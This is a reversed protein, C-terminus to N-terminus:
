GDLRICLSEEFDRVLDAAEAFQLRIPKGAPFRYRWFSAIHSIGGIKEGLSIFMSPARLLFARFAAPRGNSTLDAFADDYVKLAAMVDRRESLINTKLRKRAREFYDLADPDRMGYLNLRDLEQLTDSLAQSVDSLAWKYYLFGKWSFVGERFADGDLMLTRRLPELRDDVQTSLLAEVMRGTSGVQADDAAKTALSVLQRIEASVFAHMRAVDGPSLAFYCAAIDLRHRRLNERLLFPDLSPLMDILSMVFRDRDAQESNTSSEELFQSWHPGGVFVSKGGLNLDTRTFPVIVKTAVQRGDFFNGVEDARLRHKIILANNLTKNLFLPKEAHTPDSEHLNAIAALNLLRATSATRQLNTLRRVSRDAGAHANM